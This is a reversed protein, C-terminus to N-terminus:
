TPILTNDPLSSTLDQAAVHPMEPWRLASTERATLQILFLALLAGLILSIPVAIVMAMAVSRRIRLDAAVPIRQRSPERPGLSPSSNSETDEMVSALPNTAQSIQSSSGSGSTSDSLPVDHIEATDGVDEGTPVPPPLWRSRTPQSVIPGDVSAWPELRLVVESANQIRLVPDKEMMDAIVEVFDESLDPNLRLPHWPVEELHRRIKDRTKGGPFPVKGTVAYYLTCGLSYVDSIPGVNCPSRVVDPSIYDPTGVIRGARLDLSQEDVFGALGLDSVKATGDPTVLINGPKVDRHLLGRLHAYDLALAAQMIVKAAHREKLRGHSRVLKRLDTGPVYETVLFYVNGDHGADYARVLNPHDLKAQNRVERAFNQIAEPTCRERPLVKIAVERGMLEHVARFVQGMGGKGIFDVIRYDKLHFKKQGSKLQAVQYPTLDGRKVLESALEEDTVDEGTISGIFTENHPTNAQRPSGSLVSAALETMTSEMQTATVLGSALAADRFTLREKKVM